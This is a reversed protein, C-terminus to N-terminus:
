REQATLVIEGDISYFPSVTFQQGVAEGSIAYELTIKDGIQKPTLKSFEQAQTTALLGIISWASLLTAKIFTKM